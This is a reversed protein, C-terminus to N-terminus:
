RASELVVEKVQLARLLHGLAMRASGVWLFLQRERRLPLV